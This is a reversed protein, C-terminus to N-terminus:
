AGDQLVVIGHGGQSGAFLANSSEVLTGAGSVTLTGSANLGVVIHHDVTTDSGVSVRAGDSVTMDGHGAIGVRLHTSAVLHSNADSVAGTSPTAPGSSVRLQESRVTGGQSIMLEGAEPASGIWATNSITSSSGVGDVRLRADTGAVTLTPTSTISGGGEVSLTGGSVTTSGAYDNAGTLSLTGTGTKPLSGTGSLG